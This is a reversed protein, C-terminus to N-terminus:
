AAQNGEAERQSLEFCIYALKHQVRELGEQSHEVTALSDEQERKMRLLVETPTSPSIEFNTM